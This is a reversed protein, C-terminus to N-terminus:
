RRSASEGYDFVVTRPACGEVALAAAYGPGADVDTIFWGPEYEKVRALGCGRAKLYAEQRTWLRFFSGQRAEPPQGCLAAYDAAPLYDRAISLSDIGGRIREVDVGVERRLAAACLAMDASHSFSFRLEAPRVLFPKGFETHQFRLSAPELGAYRALIRRLAVRGRLFWARDRELLFRGAREIEEPALEAAGDAPVTEELRIRWVHVECDELQFM